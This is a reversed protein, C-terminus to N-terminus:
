TGIGTDVMSDWPIKVCFEMESPQAPRCGFSLMPVPLRVCLGVPLGVSLSISGCVSVSKNIIIIISLKQIASNVPTGLSM